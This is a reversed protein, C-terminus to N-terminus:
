STTSSRGASFDDIRFSNAGLGYAQGSRASPLNALLPDGTFAAVKSDDVRLLFTTQAKHDILHECSAWVFDGRDDAQAQWAKGLDDVLITPAVQRFADM